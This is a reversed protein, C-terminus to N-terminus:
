SPASPQRSRSWRSRRRCTRSDSEPTDASFRFPRRAGNLIAGLWTSRVFLGYSLLLLATSISLILALEISWHWHLRAAIVQLATVLPLHAIYLWYSSDALYRRLSSPSALHRLAFGILFLNWYWLTLAVCLGAGFRALTLWPAPVNKALTFGLASTMVLCILAIWLSSTSREAMTTLASMNRQCLWGVVFATGFGVTAILQPVLSRDPSPIGTAPNWEPVALAVIALPLGFVFPAVRRRLLTLLARDLFQRVRESRDLLKVILQRGALAAVYMWLLYYLFWLHTLPFNRASV